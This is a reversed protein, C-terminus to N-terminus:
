GKAFYTAVDTWGYTAAPDRTVLVNTPKRANTSLVQDVDAKAIPRTILELYYRSSPPWVEPFRTSLPLPVDMEQWQVWLSYRTIGNATEIKRLFSDLTTVKDVIPNGASDKTGASALTVLASYQEESLKIDM